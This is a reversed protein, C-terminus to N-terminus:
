KSPRGRYTNTIESWKTLNEGFWNPDYFSKALDTLELDPCNKSAIHDALAPHSGIGLVEGDDVTCVYLGGMLEARYVSQSGRKGIKKYSIVEKRPILDM